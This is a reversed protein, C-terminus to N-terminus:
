SCISTAIKSVSVSTFVFSQLWVMSEKINNLVSCDRGNQDSGQEYTVTVMAGSAPLNCECSSLTTHVKRSMQSFRSELTTYNQGRVEELNSSSKVLRLVSEYYQIHVLTKNLKDLSSVSDSASIAPLVSPTPSIGYDSILSSGVSCTWNSLLINTLGIIHQVDRRLEYAVPPPCTQSSASLLKRTPLCSVKIGMAVIIMVLLNLIGLVFPFFSITDHFTNVLSPFM